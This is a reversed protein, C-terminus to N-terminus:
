GDAYDYKVMTSTSGTWEFTNGVYYTTVGNLVSKVRNGDGDYVFTAITTTGQKVTTLRNEADYTLYYTVGSIKRQTQNGNADDTYRNNGQLAVAHKHATDTYVLTNSGNYTLNGIQNYQYTQTIYTGGSGGLAAATVLRDLPDYTFNQTQTGGANYDAIALVNGVADYTYALKQLSNYNPPTGTNLQQLRGQGNSTTWPYYVYQTPFTTDSFVRTVMRGAADYATSQLYPYPNLSSSVSNLLGQTTYTYTIQEGVGGTNDSPYKMWTVRDLSDYGWQTKFTGGGNIVKTEQTVRGREDYTWAANNGSLTDSMWTRYGLGYAGQDYAYRVNLPPNNDTPCSDDSRYHKGTLRNRADYYFCIRQGRANTQRTLNGAPDYQYSWTGMDPDVMGTKRSLRDYAMTTTYGLTDTVTTLNGLIGYAYRTYAYYTDALTVSDLYPPRCGRWDPRAALGVCM